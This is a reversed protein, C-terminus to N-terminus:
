DRPMIRPALTPVVTVLWIIRNSSTSAAPVDQRLIKLGLVNAGIAEIIPIRKSNNKWKLPELFMPAMRIPKPMKNVPSNVIVEETFGRESDSDNALRNTLKLWLGINPNKIPEPAVNIVCLEDAVTPM